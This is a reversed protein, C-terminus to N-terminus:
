CSVLRTVSLIMLQTPYTIGKAAPEEFLNVFVCESDFQQLVAEPNRLLIGDLNEAVLFWNSIKDSIQQYFAANEHFNLGHFCQIFHM